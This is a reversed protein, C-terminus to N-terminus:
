WEFNKIYDIVRDKYDARDGFFYPIDKYELYELEARCNTEFWSSLCYMYCIKFQSDFLRNYQWMKFDPTQIKECVSGGVQQFKKEIIFINNNKFDIYCEDPSKCGHAQNIDTRIEDQLLKFFNNKVARFFVKDDGEFKIKLANPTKMEEIITFHTDLDTIKEYHLGTKNTNKGGAGNGKTHYKYAEKLDLTEGVIDEIVLQTDFQELLSDMTDINLKGSHYKLMNIITKEKQTITAVLKGSRHVIVMVWIEM